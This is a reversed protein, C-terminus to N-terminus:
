VILYYSPPVMVDIITCSTVSTFISGISTSDLPVGELFILTLVLVPGKSISRNRASVSGSSPSAIFIYPPFWHTFCDCHFFWRCQSCDGYRGFLNIKNLCGHELSCCIIFQFQIEERTPAPTDMRKVTKDMRYDPLIFVARSPNGELCGNVQEPGLCLIGALISSLLINFVSFHYGPVLNVLLHRFIGLGGNFPKVCMGPINNFNTCCCIPLFVVGPFLKSKLPALHWAQLQTLTGFGKCEPFCKWPFKGPEIGKLFHLKGIEDILSLCELFRLSLLLWGLLFLVLLCFIVTLGDLIFEM